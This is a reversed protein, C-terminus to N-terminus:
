KAPEIKRIRQNNTDAVYLNGNKDFCIAEPGYLSAGLKDATALGDKYKPIGNGAYRTAFGTSTIKFILNGTRDAVFFSGDYFALGSPNLLSYTVGGEVVNVGITSVTGTSLNVKRLVSNGSDSVYLILGTNDIAIGEISRFRALLLAGDSKGAATSGTITTVSGSPTIKRIRKDDAVYINGAADLCLANPSIFDSSITTVTSGSIKRISHNYTDAVYINGSSDSALGRSNNFRANVLSGDVNGYGTYSPSIYKSSGAYESTFGDPTIKRLAPVDKEFVFIRDKTSTIAIPFNFMPTNGNQYGMKASYDTAPSTTGALTSVKATQAFCITGLLVLGLFYNKM